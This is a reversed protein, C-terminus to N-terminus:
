DRRAGHFLDPDRDHRAHVMIRDVTEGDSSFPCFLLWRASPHEESDRQLDTRNIFYPCRTEIATRYNDFVRDSDKFPSSEAVTRGTPDFGLWAVIATGVLRYRLDFPDTEVDVLVLHPLWDRPIRLVDIDASDPLARDGKMKEWYEFTERLVPIADALCDPSKVVFREREVKM